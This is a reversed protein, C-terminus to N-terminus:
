ILLTGTLRYIPPDHAQPVPIYLLGWQQLGTWPFLPRSLSRVHAPSLGTTESSEPVLFSGLRDQTFCVCLRCDPIVQPASTDGTKLEKAAEPDGCCGGSADPDCLM